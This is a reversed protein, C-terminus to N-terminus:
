RVGIEGLFNEDSGLKELKQVLELRVGIERIQGWNRSIRIQGWNRLRVGIEIRIQGWNRLKELLLLKM